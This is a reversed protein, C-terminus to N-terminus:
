NYSMSRTNRSNTITANPLNQAQQQSQYQQFQQPFQGQKSDMGWSNVSSFNNPQYAGYNQPVSNWNGPNSSPQFGQFNPPVQTPLLIDLNTVFKVNCMPIVVVVVEAVVMGVMAVVDPAAIGLIHTTTRILMKLHLMRKLLLHSNSNRSRPPFNWSISHLPKLPSSRRHNKWDCRM